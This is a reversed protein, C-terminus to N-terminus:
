DKFKMVDSMRHITANFIRKYVDPALLEHAMHMFEQEFRLKNVRKSQQVLEKRSEKADRLDMQIKKVSIVAVDRQKSLKDHLAEGM